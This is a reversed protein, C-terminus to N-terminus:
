DKWASRALSHLGHGLVALDDFDHVVSVERTEPESSRRV